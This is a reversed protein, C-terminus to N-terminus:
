SHTLLDGRGEPEREDVDVGGGFRCDRLNGSLQYSGRSHRWCDRWRDGVFCHSAASFEACDTEPVTLSNKARTM